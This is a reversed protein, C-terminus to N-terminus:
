AQATAAITLSLAAAILRAARWGRLSTMRAMCTAHLTKIRQRLVKGLHRMVKGRSIRCAAGGVWRRWIPSQFLGRDM